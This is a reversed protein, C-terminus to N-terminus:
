RKAWKDLFGPPLPQQKSAYSVRPPMQSPLQLTPPFVQNVLADIKTRPYGYGMKDLM